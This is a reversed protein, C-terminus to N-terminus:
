RFEILIESKGHPELIIFPVPDEMRQERTLVSPPDVYLGPDWHYPLLVRQPLRGEEDRKLTVSLRDYSSVVTIGREELSGDAQEAKWLSFHRSSWIPAQDLFGEFFERCDPTSTLIWSINYLDIYQRLREKGMEPLSREMATCMHFNTFNHIIFVWPYPGGIQEVGTFQPIIAPIFSDGYNWAPGDEIMLRGSPETFRKLADILEEVEPTLTTSVTHRYWARSSLLGFVPSSILMALLIATGARRMFSISTFINKLGAGALPAMLILAPVLFRGPEMQDFVPIYIGFAAIIILFISGAAPGAADGSRGSRVLHVLGTIALAVLLLAPLNGPKVLIGLLGQIGDIQFFTESAVKIDLYRFFPVLWIANVAIVLLCWAVLKALVKLEWKRHVKGSPIRKREVLFLALFPAPLLVTMTPHVLFALPGALWFARAKEERLVSRFLGMIYLSLHCVILFSFMGAFRFEGAYPRGWHWFALLALISLVSEKFSYGLKRSGAYVTFPLLLYGILIYLKYTRATGIFGTFVCWLEVGKSDIDFVTGGPYGAMFYPDYAHLRYSEGFIERARVAQQYHLSHDLSTVPRSNIIDEPPFFFLTAILHAGFIVALIMGRRSATEDSERILRIMPRLALLVGASLFAAAYVTIEGTGFSRLTATIGLILAIGLLIRDFLSLNM